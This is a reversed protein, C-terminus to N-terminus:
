VHRMGASMYGTIRGYLGFKKGYYGLRMINKGAVNGSKRARTFRLSQNNGSCAMDKREKKPPAVCCTHSRLERVLSQVCAVQM